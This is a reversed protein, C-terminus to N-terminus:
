VRPMILLAGTVLLLAYIAVRFNQENVRHHLWEGLLLGIALLPLFAAVKPLAPVLRGDFVFAVALTSNLTLWVAALTARFRAKDLTTGALAYVLLPGGSAFLGHTVGAALTLARTLWLPRTGTARAYRLRLLERGSFWLVLLGFLQRSVQAHIWPKALYGGATGLLMGPLVVKLLLNRDIFRLNRWVMVSSLCVSLPVLVVVLQDIPVILAGLSLAIVIGGFGTIAELTVALLIFGGVALWATEM